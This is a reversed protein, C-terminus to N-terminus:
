AGPKQPFKEKQLFMEEVKRHSKLAQFVQDEVPAGAFHYINVTNKQGIRTLRGITQEFLEYSWPLTFFVMNHCGGLHLNLGHGASAPHIALCQVSGSLWDDLANRQKIWAVDLETDMIRHLEHQYGYAIVFQAGQAENILNILRTIKEKHLLIWALDEVILDKSDDFLISSKYIAGSEMQRLKNKVVAANGGVIEVGNTHEIEVIYDELLRDYEPKINKPIEYKIPLFEKEIKITAKVTISYPQIKAKIVEDAKPKLEWKWGNYDSIFYKERYRTFTPEIVEAGACMFMEGWLNLFSNGIPTGTLGIRYPVDLIQRRIARFRKSGPDKMNSIEDFVVCDYWQSFKLGEDKIMHVLGMMLEYNILHFNTREWILKKRKQKPQCLLTFSLDKLDKWQAAEQRWVTQCVFKPAFILTREPNLKKVGYLTAATKGSGPKSFVCLQKKNAISKIIGLQYPKLSSATRLTM